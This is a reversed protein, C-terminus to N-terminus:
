LNLIMCLYKQAYQDVAEKIVYLQGIPIKEIM